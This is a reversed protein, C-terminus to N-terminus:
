INLLSMSLDLKKAARRNRTDENRREKNALSYAKQYERRKLARTTINASLLKNICNPDANIYQMEKALLESKDNYQLQELLEIKYDDQCILEFSTVYHYREDLHRQFDAEHKRLRTTLTKMTSGIYVDNTCTSSIKYIKGINM